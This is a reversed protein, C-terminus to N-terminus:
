FERSLQHFTVLTVAHGSDAHCPLRQSGWHGILQFPIAMFVGLGVGRCFDLLMWRVTMKPTSNVDKIVPIACASGPDGACFRAHVGSTYRNQAPSIGFTRAITAQRRRFM